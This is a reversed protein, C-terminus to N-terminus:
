SRARANRVFWHQELGVPAVLLALPQLGSTRRVPVASGVRQAGGDGRIALAVSQALLGNTGSNRAQLEGQVLKLADTGGLLARAAANLYICRGSQDLLFTACHARDLRAEGSAGGVQAWALRQSMTFARQLHPVLLKLADLDDAAFPGQSKARSLSLLGSGFPREWIKAGLAHYFDFKALHENYFASRTLAERSVFMADTCLQGEKLSRSARIIDPPPKEGGLRLASAAANPLTSSSWNETYDAISVERDPTGLIRVGEQVDDVFIAGGVSTRFLKGLKAMVGPWAAPDLPAEYILHLLADYDSEQM